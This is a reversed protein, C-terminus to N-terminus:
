TGLIIFTQKTDRALIQYVLDMDLRGPEDIYIKNYRSYCIGSPFNSQSVVNPGLNGSDDLPPLDMFYRVLHQHRVIIMDNFTARSKIYSTKGTQRGIDCRVTAFERVWAHIPFEEALHTVKQRNAINLQVLDDVCQCFDM